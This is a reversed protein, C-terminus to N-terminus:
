EDLTYIPSCGEMGMRSSKLAKVRKRYGHLLSSGGLLRRSGENYWLLPGRWGSFPPVMHYTHHTFNRDNMSFFVVLWRVKVLLFRTGFYLRLNPLFPVCPHPFTTLKEFRCQPRCTCMLRSGLVEIYKSLAFEAELHLLLAFPDLSWLCLLTSCAARLVEIQGTEGPISIPTSRELPPSVHSLHHEPSNECVFCCLTDFVHNLASATYLSIRSTIASGLMSSKWNGSAISLRDASVKFNCSSCTSHYCSILCSLSLSM